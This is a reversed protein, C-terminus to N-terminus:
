GRGLWVFEPAKCHKEIFEFHGPMWDVSNRTVQRIEAMRSRFMEDPMEDVVPDYRGPAIGQGMMVAYWSTDNFLEDHERFVRGTSKFIAIKEKLYDSIQMTRCHDWYPTDSRETANYHLILFDRIKEYEWTMWRNYLGIEAEGMARTPLLTMLRSIGVQILHISQSELPEMFGASLGIAVVNKDWSKKRRGATFKLRFPDALPAGDLNDLLIATAEDDSMHASSYAHGNGLRHQLPIRWQWGAPRATARTVPRLSGGLECPVAVARDNMLWESWDEYGASLTQEILLGRFGSCDIYFDAEITEGSETLVSEVFGTEPHQRVEVIRGEVRKLGRAESYERLYKAYLNADFHFAYAIDALPSNGANPVPRSFKADEAGLAQLSYEDLKGGHGEALARLYFAHFSVGGMDVGYPGFPHYYRDGIRRWDVFEIALKFTAQTKRVFDDEDLGLLRNFIRIQPITSEGVGVTGIAESEIVTVKTFGDTLFRALAAATMWGATGGGVILIHRLRNDDSM